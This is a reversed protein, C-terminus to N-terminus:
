GGEAQKPTQTSLTGRPEVRADDPAARGDMPRHEDGPGPATDHVHSGDVTEPVGLLRRIEEETLCPDDAPM